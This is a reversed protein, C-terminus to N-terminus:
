LQSKPAAEPVRVVPRNSAHTFLSYFDQSQPQESVLDFTITQPNSESADGHIPKLILRQVVSTKRNAWLEITEPLRAHDASTARRRAKLHHFMTGQPTLSVDPMVSLEYRDRMRALVTTLQLYPMDLSARELWQGVFSESKAVFVPGVAPAFWFEDDVRGIHLNRGLPGRTSLLFREGGHVYLTGERITRGGTLTVRYERDVPKLTAQYAEETLAAASAPTTPRFFLGMAVVISAAALSLMWRRSHSRLGRSKSDVLTVGDERRLQTFTAALARAVSEANQRHAQELLADLWQWDAIRCRDESSSTAFRDESLGEDLLQSALEDTRSPQSKDDSDQIADANM